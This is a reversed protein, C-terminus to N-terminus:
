VSDKIASPWVRISTADSLEKDLLDRMVWGDSGIDDLIFRFAQSQNSVISLFCAKTTHGDCIERGIDKVVRYVAPAIMTLCIPCATKVIEGGEEGDVGISCYRM